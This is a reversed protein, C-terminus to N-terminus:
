GRWVTGHSFHVPLAPHAFTTTTSTALRRLMSGGRITVVSSGRVLSTMVIGTARGPEKRLEFPRKLIIEWVQVASLSRPLFPRRCFAVLFMRGRLWQSEHAPQYFQHSRRATYNQIRKASRSSSKLCSTRLTEPRDTTIRPFIGDSLCASPQVDLHIM